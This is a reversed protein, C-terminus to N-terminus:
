KLEILLAGDRARVAKVRDKVKAEDAKNPDLVYVPLADLVQGLVLPVVAGLVAEVAAPAPTFGQADGLRVDSVRVQRPARLFFAGDAAEYAVLGQVQARAQAAVGPGDGRVTLALAVQGDEGPFSVKPEFLTVSVLSASRTIPFRSALRRQLQEQSLRFTGLCGSSLAGLTLLLVTSRWSRM